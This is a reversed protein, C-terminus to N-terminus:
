SQLDKSLRVMLDEEILDILNLQCDVGGFVRFSSITKINGSISETSKEM